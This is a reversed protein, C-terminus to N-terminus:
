LPKRKWPGHPSETAKGYVDEYLCALTKWSYLDQALVQGAEAIKKRLVSDSLLQSVKRGFEMPDNALFINSEDTVNLGEAGVSTSVVPRGMAMAEVIKLRSGSGIRIPAIFVAGRQYYPRVDPVEGTVTVGNYSECAQIQSTPNPGVVYIKLDPFEKKLLPYIEKFFWIVGDVNPQYDMSGVFTLSHAEEQNEQFSQPNFFSLDVGNPIVSVPVRSSIRKQSFEADEKCCVVIHAVAKAAKKEYLFLKFLSEWRAIKRKFSYNQYKGAQLQFFFDMRTRDLVVPTNPFHEQAHQLMCLDQLHILDFNSNKSFQKLEDPVSEHSWHAVVSPIPSFIRDLLKEWPPHIFPLVEVKRCFKEFIHTASFDRPSHSLAFLFTEHTKSIERLLHFARHYAGCTLPYPVYPYLFLIKM